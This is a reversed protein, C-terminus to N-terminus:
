DSKMELRASNEGLLQDIRFLLGWDAKVGFYEPLKLVAEAGGAHILHMVVRSRGPFEQLMEKLAKLEPEGSKELALSIHLTNAQGELAQEITMIKDAVLRTTEEHKLMGRVILPRGSQKLLEQYQLFTKPYVIVELRGSLDELKFSAMREKKRTIREEYNLIMGAALVSQESGEAALEAASLIGLRQVLQQYKSMPHGSLYHGLVEKEYALLEAMEWEPIEPYREKERSQEAEGPKLISFFDEQGQARSKRLSQGSEMAQDLVKFMQSRTAGLKDFAGAKILSEIVKRNVAHLDVRECFEFISQFPGGAERERIIEQVAAEGVNKVAGLGYIIRDGQVTFKWQSSNIHPPLVEIKMRECENLYPAIEDIDGMESSLCASLYEVPYYCKLYATQYALLTYATSHSKNFGYGAFEKILEFIHEAMQKKLGNKLSRSVFTERQAEMIKIDKKGMAKRLRDAEGMSYNALTAAIQMVQEQYLIVGYTEKLIEELQPLLYNIEKRGHKGDIFDRNMKSGLPGPRYLANLAILEEFRNPKLAMVNKTMGPSEMQFVGVTEGRSLMAFVEPDNLALNDMDLKVGRNQSVMRVTQDIVTLNRLGLIDFKVLGLKAVNEGTFQTTIVENKGKYLPMYETVPKDSVVVGAAHTGPNRNLGEIQQAVRFLEAVKPDSDVMKQLQPEQKLAVALEIDSEKPVLKAVLDVQKFPLNLARGVDRIVARAKLKQFTIVQVVKTEGGYKESVYRIVEPRREQCIDVDIDPMERREPNLFREFILGWRIPDVNTIGLSYAVLSGAASGRGPGVPIQNRRAFNIFDNVILFYGAFGTDIIVKLEEEFRKRYIAERAPFQPDKAQLQAIRKEFGERAERAFRQEVSEDASTEIQPLHVKGLEFFFECKGAIELTNNLAEPLERFLYRMEEGSRFFLQNTKIQFRDKEDFKKNQQICLLINQYQDGGQKLYHCDNTCVLPAQSRRALELLKKNVRSQDELGNEQLELYFNDKGFVAQYWELKKEAEGNKGALLLQPLEGQLCASLGILGKGYKELLERDIRPKHYFGELFSLTILQCLNKYGQENQCLLVLHFPSGEERARSQRSGRAMYVECGIIPKVKSKMAEEYFEVAGFINGHDTLAVAPMKNELASKVLEPIRILGDLMSYESHVHLHVFGLPKPAM